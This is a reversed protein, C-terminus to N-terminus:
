FKCTGFKRAAVPDRKQLLAFILPRVDSMKMRNDVLRDVDEAIDRAIKEESGCRICIKYVMEKDYLDTHSELNRKRM